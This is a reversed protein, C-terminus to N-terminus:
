TLFNECLFIQQLRYKQIKLVKKENFSRFSLRHEKITCSIITMHQILFAAAHSQRFYKLMLFAVIYWWARVKVTNCAAILRGGGRQHKEKM